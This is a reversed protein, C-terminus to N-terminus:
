SFGGRVQAGTDIFARLPQGSVECELFLMANDGGGGDRGVGAVAAAEEAAARM